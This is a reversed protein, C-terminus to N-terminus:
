SDILIAYVDRSVGLPLFDGFLGRQSACQGMPPISCPFRSAGQTLFSEDLIAM